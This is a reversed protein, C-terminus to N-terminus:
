PAVSGGEVGWPQQHRSPEVHVASRLCGGVPCASASPPVCGQLWLPLGASTACEAPQYVSRRHPTASTSTGGSIDRQLSSGDEATARLLVANGSFSRTGYLTSGTSSWLKLQHHCGSPQCHCARAGGGGRSNLLLRGEPFALAVRVGRGPVPRGKGTPRGARLHDTGAPRTQTASAQEDLKRSSSTATTHQTSNRLLSYCSCHPVPPVDPDSKGWAVEELHWMRAPTRPIKGAQPVQQQGQTTRLGKGTTSGLGLRRQGPVTERDGVSGM